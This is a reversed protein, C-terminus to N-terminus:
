CTQLRLILGLITTALNRLNARFGSLSGTPLDMDKLQNLYYMEKAANKEDEILPAFLEDNMRQEFKSSQGLDINVGASKVLRDFQTVENSDAGFKDVMEKRARFNKQASTMDRTKDLDKIITLKGSLPDTSYVYGDEIGYKMQPLLGSRRAITLDEDMNILASMPNSLLLHTLQDTEDSVGGLRKIQPRRQNVLFDSARKSVFTKFENTGEQLGQEKAANIDFALM